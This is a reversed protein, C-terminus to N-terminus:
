GQNARTSDIIHEFYFRATKSLVIKRAIAKCPFFAKSDGISKLVNSWVHLDAARFSGWFSRKLATKKEQM